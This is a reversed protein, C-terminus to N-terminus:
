TSLRKYKAKDGKKEVEVKKQKKDLQKKMEEQVKRLTARAKEQIKRIREVFEIAKEIKGKKRIDVVIRLEKGYNEMFLFVKIRIHVKNNVAFEAIVLQEPWKRQRYDM